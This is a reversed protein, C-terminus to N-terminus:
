PTRRLHLFRRRRRLLISLLRRRRFVRRSPIRVLFEEGLRCRHRRIHSPLTKPTTFLSLPPKTPSPSLNALPLPVSLPVPSAFLAATTLMHPPWITALVSPTNWSVAATRAGDSLTKRTSSQLQVAWQPRPRRGHTTPPSNLTANTSPPSHLTSLPSHLTPSAFSDVPSIEPRERDGGKRKDRLLSWIQVMKNQMEPSLM